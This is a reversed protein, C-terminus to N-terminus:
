INAEVPIELIEGDMYEIKVSDIKCYKITSNYWINEVNFSKVDGKKSIEIPGTARIQTTSKNGIESRVSDDVANYPTVTLVIYKITKDSLNNLSFTVNVGGVSNPKSTECQYIECINEAILIPPPLQHIAKLTFSEVINNKVNFIAQVDSNIYDVIEGNKSFYYKLNTKTAESEGYVSVVKESTDGVFIQSNFAWGEGVNLYDILGNSDLSFSIDNDLSLYITGTPASTFTFDLTSETPTGMLTFSEGITENSVTLNWPTENVDDFDPAVLTVKPIEETPDNPIQVTDSVESQNTDNSPDSSITESSSCGTLCFMMVAVFLAIERVM